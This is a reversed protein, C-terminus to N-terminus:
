DIFNLTTKQKQKNDRNTPVASACDVSGVGCFLGRTTPSSGVGLAKGL